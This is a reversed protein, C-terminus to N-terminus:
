QAIDPHTGMSDITLIAGDLEVSQLLEPLVALERSKKKV